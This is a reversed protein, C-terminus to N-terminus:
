VSEDRDPFAVKASNRLLESSLETSRAKRLGFFRNHNLRGGRSSDGNLPPQSIFRFIRLKMVPYKGEAKKGGAM